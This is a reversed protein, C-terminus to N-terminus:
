DVEADLSPMLSGCGELFSGVGSSRLPSERKRGTTMRRGDRHDDNQDRGKDEELGPLGVGDGLHIVGMWRRLQAVVAAAM